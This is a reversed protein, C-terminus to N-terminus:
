EQISVSDMMCGYQQRAETKSVSVYGQFIEAVVFVHPGPGSVAIGMRLDARSGAGLGVLYINGEM